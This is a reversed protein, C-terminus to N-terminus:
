VSPHSLLLSCFDHVLYVCISTSLQPCIATPQEAAMDMPCFSGLLWLREEMGSGGQWSAQEMYSGEKTGM